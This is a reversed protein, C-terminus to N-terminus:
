LTKPAASSTTFLNSEERATKSILHVLRNPQEAAEKGCLRTIQPMAALWSTPFSRPSKVAETTDM